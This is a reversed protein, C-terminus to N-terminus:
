QLKTSGLPRLVILREALSYRKWLEARYSKHEGIEYSVCDRRLHEAPRATIRRLIPAARDALTLEPKLDTSPADPLHAHIKRAREFEAAIKSHIVVLSPSPSQSNV